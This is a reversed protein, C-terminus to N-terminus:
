KLLLLMKTKVFNNAQLRYLYMGSSCNNANWDVTYAGAEKRQDVLVAIERGLLDFIKLTVHSSQQITYPIRTMANFPNPYNQELKAQLPILASSLVSTVSTATGNYHIVTDFKVPSNIGIGSGTDVWVINLVRERSMAPFTGQRAGIVFQRSSDHYTFPIISYQGKEYNNNSNEDEYLKFQGDAGPYIRVELTDAPKETAYQM